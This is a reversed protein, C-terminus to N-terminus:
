FPLLSSLLLAAILLLVNVSLASAANCIQDWEESTKSIGLVESALQLTNEFCAKDNGLPHAIACSDHCCSRELAERMIAHYELCDSDCMARKYQSKRPPGYKEQTITEIKQKCQLKSQREIYKECDRIWIEYIDPRCAENECFPLGVDDLNPNLIWYDDVTNCWAELQAADLEEGSGVCTAPPDAIKALSPDQTPPVDENEVVDVHANFRPESVGIAVVGLAVDTPDKTAVVVISVDLEAVCMVEVTDGIVVLVGVVVVAVVVIAAVAEDLRRIVVVGDTAVVAITASDRWEVVVDPVERLTVVAADAGPVAAGTDCGVGSTVVTSGFTAPPDAIKALSPDQTPPVDENEVVDVHANSVFRVDDDAVSVSRTGLSTDDVEDIVIQTRYKPDVDM